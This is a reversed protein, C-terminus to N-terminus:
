RAATRCSTPSRCTSWRAPRAAARQPDRLPRGGQPRARRHRPRARGHRRRRHPRQHAAAHDALVGQRGRRRGSAAPRRPGPREGPGRRRVARRQPDQQHRQHDPLRAARAHRGHAADPVPALPVPRRQVPGRGPLPQRRHARRGRRPRRRRPRHSAPSPRARAPSTSASSRSTSTDAVPRDDPGYITARVTGEPLTPVARPTQLPRREATAPAGSAAAGIVALVVALGHKQGELSFPESRKKEGNLTAEAVLKTGPPLDALDAFRAAGRSDSSHAAASSRRTRSPSRSRSRSASSPGVAPSTSPVSSWRAPAPGPEPVRHGADAGRRRGARRQCSSTAVPRAAAGQVLLMRVGVNPDLKVEQSRVVEGEFEVSAVATGGAYVGLDAFSARGQEVSVATRTELKSGDLSRLELTVTLGVGPNQFSGRLVRVVITGAETQPDVRPIGSM